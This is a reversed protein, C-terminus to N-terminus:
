CSSFLSARRPSPLLWGPQRQCYVPAARHWRLCEVAWHDPFLKEEYNVLAKGNEPRDAKVRDVAM